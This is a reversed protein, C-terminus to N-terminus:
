KFITTHGTTLTPHWILSLTYYFIYTPNLRTESADVLTTGNTETFELDMFKPINLAFSITTVPVIYILLRKTNSMTQTIIRFITILTQIDVLILPVFPEQLYYTNIYTEVSLAFFSKRNMIISLLKYSELFYSYSCKTLIYAQRFIIRM